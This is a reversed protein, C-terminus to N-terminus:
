PLINLNEDLKFRLQHHVHYVNSWSSVAKGENRKTLQDYMEIARKFYDEPIMGSCTGHKTWEHNWFHLNAKVLTENNREDEKTIKEPIAKHVNSSWVEPLRKLVPDTTHLLKEVTWGLPTKNGLDEQPWLGHINYLQLDPSWKLSYLFAVKRSRSDSSRSTSISMSLFRIQVVLM